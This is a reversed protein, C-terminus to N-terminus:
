LGAYAREDAEGAWESFTAFPDDAPVARAVTVRGDPEVTWLIADGPALALARRVALPVTTQAKATLRGHIM